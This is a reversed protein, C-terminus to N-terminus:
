EAPEEEQVQAITFHPKSLDMAREKSADLRAFSSMEWMTQDDRGHSARHRRRHLTRQDPLDVTDVQNAEDFGICYTGSNLQSEYVGFLYSDHKLRLAAEMEWREYTHGSARDRKRWSLELADSRLLSSAYCWSIVDAIARYNRPLHRKVGDRCVEYPILIIYSFLYVLATILLPSSTYVTRHHKGNVVTVMSAVVIPLLQQLLSITSVRAVKWHKNIIATYTVVGPPLCNYGLLINESAPMPKVRMGIFPQTTRCFTDADEWFWTYVTVLNAPLYQFLFSTVGYPLSVKLGSAMKTKAAALLLGCLILAAVTGILMMSRQMFFYASRYSAKSVEQM